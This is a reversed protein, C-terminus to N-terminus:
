HHRLRYSPTGIASTGIGRWRMLGSLGIWYRVAELRDHKPEAGSCPVASMRVISAIQTRESRAGESATRVYGRWTVEKASLVPVDAGIEDGVGWEYTM